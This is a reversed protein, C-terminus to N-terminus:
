AAKDHLSRGADRQQGLVPSRLGTARRVAELAAMSITMRAAEIRHGEIMSRALIDYQVGADRFVRRLVIGPMIGIITDIDHGLGFEIYALVLEQVIRRRRDPPLSREVCFRTGEWVTGTMRALEDGSLMQPWLDAIMCGESVPSLRSVGFVHGGDGEYVLYVAAPTDYQDFERDRYSRVAYGQREIFCRHRLAFQAAFAGGTRDLNDYTVCTIM